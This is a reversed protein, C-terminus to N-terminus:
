EVKRSSIVSNGRRAILGTVGGLDNRVFEVRLDVAKQFFETESLPFLEGKPQTGIARFLRGDELTVTIMM